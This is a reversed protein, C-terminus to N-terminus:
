WRLGFDKRRLKAMRGDSHHFVLGEEDHHTLWDLLAERTRDVVIEVSGHRRLEHRDLRHKNGNVRPGLLEYTGDDLGEVFAERHFRDEPGDGVPLWGPWHGTNPDREPECPQWGDPITRGAKADFRKFLMGDQVLVSSGDFKITARGEGNIVWDIQVEETALHTARDIVFVTKMKKM